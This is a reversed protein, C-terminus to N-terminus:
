NNHSDQRGSQQQSVRVNETWSKNISRHTQTGKERMHPPVSTLRVVQKLVVAVGEAVLHGLEEGAAPDWLVDCVQGGFHEGRSDTQTWEDDSCDLKKNAM